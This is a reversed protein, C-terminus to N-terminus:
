NWGTPIRSQSEKEVHGPWPTLRGWDGLLCVPKAQNIISFLGGMFLWAIEREAFQSQFKKTTMIM